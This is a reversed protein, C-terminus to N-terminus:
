SRCADLLDNNAKLWGDLAAMLKPALQDATSYDGADIDVGIEQTTTRLASLASRYDAVSAACSSGVYPAVLASQHIGRALAHDLKAHVHRYCDKLDGIGPGACDRYGGTFRIVALRTQDVVVVMHNWQKKAAISGVYPQASTQPSTDAVDTQPPTSAAPTTSGSAASGCATCVAMAVM